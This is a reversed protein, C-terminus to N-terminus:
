GDHIESEHWSLKISKNLELISFTYDDPIDIGQKKAAALILKAAEIYSVIVTLQKLVEM